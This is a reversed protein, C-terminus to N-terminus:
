SEGDEEDVIEEAQSAVVESLLTLTKKRALRGHNGLTHGHDELLCKFLAELNEGLKAATDVSFDSEACRRLLKRYSSFM